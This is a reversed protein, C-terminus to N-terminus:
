AIVIMASEYVRERVPTCVCLARPNGACVRPTPRVCGSIISWCVSGYVQKELRFEDAFQASERRGTVGVIGHLHTCM